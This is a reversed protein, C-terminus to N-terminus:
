AALSRTNAYIWEVYLEARKRDYNWQEILLKVADGKTLKRGRSEEQDNEDDEDEDTDTGAGPLDQNYLDGELSEKRLASGGDVPPRQHGAELSKVMSELTAIRDLLEKYSDGLHSEQEIAEVTEADGIRAALSRCLDMYTNPNVPEATIAVDKVWSDRIVKGERRRIKGEVSFGLRRNSGAKKLAMGLDIVAEAKPTDLFYGKVYLGQDTFKADTPIGVKSDPGKEHNWNFFGRDLFYNIDMGAQVVTEGFLDTDETSAIGEFYTKGDASKKLDLPIAFRFSGDEHLGQKLLEAM